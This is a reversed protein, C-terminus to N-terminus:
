GRVQTICWGILKHMYNSMLEQRSIYKLWQWGNVAKLFGTCFCSNKIEKVQINPLNVAGTSCAYDSGNYTDKTLYEISSVKLDSQGIIEQLEGVSVKIPLDRLRSRMYDYYSPNKVLWVDNPGFVVDFDGFYAERFLSGAMEEEVPIHGPPIIVVYQRYNRVQPAQLYVAMAGFKRYEADLASSALDYQGHQEQIELFMDAYEFEYFFPNISLIEQSSFPYLHRCLLMAYLSTAAYSGLVLASEELSLASIMFHVDDQFYRLIQSAFKSQMQFVHQKLQRISSLAKKHNALTSAILRNLQHYDFLDWLFAEPIFMDAYNKGSGHNAVLPVVDFAAGEFVPRERGTMFSDVYVKAKSYLDLIDSRELGELLIVETGKPLQLLYKHCLYSNPNLKLPLLM